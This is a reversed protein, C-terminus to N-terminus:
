FICKTRWRKLLKRTQKFAKHQDDDMVPGNLLLKQFSFTHEQNKGNSIKLGM